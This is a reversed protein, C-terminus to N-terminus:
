IHNNPWFAPKNKTGQLRCDVCFRSAWFSDGMPVPGTYTTVELGREWLSKFSLPNDMNVFEEICNYSFKYIGIDEGKAFIRKNTIIGASIFGIVKESKNSVCIINGSMESPQPSFIGGLQDSNKQINDWYKFAEETIAMQNLEMSYLYSIRNDNSGMSVIPKEHVRDETLGTTSAVLISSSRRKGWCYYKNRSEPLPVVENTEPLYEFLAQYQSHIEWDESFFWRYYRTNGTPDNSSVHFTVSQKVTDVDYGISGVPPAPLISLLSSVYKRQGINVHLRYKLNPNIGVTNIIYTILGTNGIQKAPYKTGLESEVWVTAGSVYNVVSEDNVSISRSIIIRTTDNQIIDGEIVYMNDITEIGEPMFPKVCGWLAFM